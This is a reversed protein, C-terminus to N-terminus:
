CMNLFNGLFGSAFSFGLGIHSGMVMYGHGAVLWEFETFRWIVGRSTWLRLQTNLKRWRFLVEVGVIACGFLIVLDLFGLVENCM